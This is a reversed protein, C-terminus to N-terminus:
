MTISISKREKNSFDVKTGPSQKKVKVVSPYVITDEVEFNGNDSKSWELQYKKMIPQHNYFVGALGDVLHIIETDDDVVGSELKKYFVFYSIEKTKYYEDYEEQFVEDGYMTLKCTAGTTLKVHVHITVFKFAFLPFIRQELLKFSIENCNAPIDIKQILTNAIVIIIELIEGNTSEVHIDKVWIPEYSIQYITDKPKIASTKNGM